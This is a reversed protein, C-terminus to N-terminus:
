CQAEIVGTFPEVAVLTMQGSVLKLECLVISDPVFEWEEDEADYHEPKLLKFAGNSMRIAEVPRLVDTGENLLRVYVNCVETDSDMVVLM